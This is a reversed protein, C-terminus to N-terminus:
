WRGGGSDRRPAATATGIHLAAGAGAQTKAASCVTLPIGILKGAVAFAAARPVNEQFAAQM